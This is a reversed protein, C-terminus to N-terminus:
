GVDTDDDPANRDDAGTSTRTQTGKHKAARPLTRQTLPDYVPEDGAGVDTPIPRFFRLGFPRIGDGAAAGDGTSAAVEAPSESAGPFQEDFMIAMGAGGQRCRGYRSSEELHHAKIYPSSVLSEAPENCVPRLGVIHAM